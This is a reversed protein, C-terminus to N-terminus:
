YKLSLFEIFFAILLKVQMIASQRICYSLQRIRILKKRVYVDETVCACVHYHSRSHTHLPM